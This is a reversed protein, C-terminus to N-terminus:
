LVNKGDPGVARLATLAAALVPWLGTHEAASLWIAGGALLLCVAAAVWASIARAAHEPFVLLLAARLARGGDLPFVPLLNFAALGLGVLCFDPWVRRLALALLNAAPGALACLLERRYDMPGTRLVAGGARLSIGDIRVGLACLAAAHGAEHCLAAALFAAFVRWPCLWCLLATVAAWGPGVDLRRPM